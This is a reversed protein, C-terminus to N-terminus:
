VRYGLDKLHKEVSEINVDEGEVPQEAVVSKREGSEYVHWPVKVLGDVYVGEPHRYTKIPIPREREGLLEGHDASVVTKGHLDDLLTQVESLVIDLTERYAQIVDSHTADTTRMIKHFPGERFKDGTPGLYPWHPQMYHVMLRKDPYAEATERAAASVTEPHSTRGDMLDRDVFKLLHVEADIDDKTKAYWDNATVYVLDHLRKEGFNGRVFEPSTSGRSIRSETRGPLDSCRVFEDYRCADLIILNDWDEEFVDIGNPNYPQGARWHNYQQNLESVISHPHNIGHVIDEKRYPFRDSFKKALQSFM